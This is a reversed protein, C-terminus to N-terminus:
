DKPNQRSFAFFYNNQSQMSEEESLVFYISAFLQRKLYEKMLFKCSNSVSEESSYIKKLTPLKKSHQLNM